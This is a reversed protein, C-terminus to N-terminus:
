KLKQEILLHLDFHSSFKKYDSRLNSTVHLPSLIWFEECEDGIAIELTIDEIGDWGFPHRQVSAAVFKRHWIWDEKSRGGGQEPCRWSM